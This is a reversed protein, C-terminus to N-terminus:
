IEEAKYGRRIVTKIIKGNAGLAKRLNRMHTDLVREDTGSNYGWVIDMLKERSIVVGKNEMLVKLIGYERATLKVEQGDSVVLGNNPNLSLTGITFIKSRVLGKSRKILANAKEYLVPLPFPKIVYDDCGLAYGGLIDSENSRATIFMIPVDSEKRIERCIEFGDLEPLMVDLLLLDYYNEYAKELGTQGNAAVEIKFLDKEKKTFYNCVLQQINKDDEVLLIRYM